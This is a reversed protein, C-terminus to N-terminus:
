VYVKECIATIRFDNLGNFNDKLTIILKDQTNKRILINMKRKLFIYPPNSRDSRGENDIALLNFGNLVFENTSKASSLIYSDINNIKSYVDIGNQVSINGLRNVDFGTDSFLFILEKILINYDSSSDISFDEPILFNSDLSQNSININYESSLFEKNYNLGSSLFSSDEVCEFKQNNYFFSLFGENRFLVPPNKTKLFENYLSIFYNYDLIKTSESEDFIPDSM